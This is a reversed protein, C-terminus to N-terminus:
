LKDGSIVVKDVNIVIVFDGGDVNFVFMLKYKGCLLNVVVVVFCGFVVDMVDIVYWM